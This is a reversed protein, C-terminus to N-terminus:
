QAIQFVPFIIAHEHKLRLSCRSNRERQREGKRRPTQPVKQCVGVHNNDFNPENHLQSIMNGHTSTCRHWTTQLSSLGLSSAIIIM